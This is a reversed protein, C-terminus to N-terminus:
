PLDTLRCIFGWGGGIESVALMLENSGKKLPLYVADDELSIIGLRWKECSPLVPIFNTGTPLQLYNRPPATIYRIRKKSPPLTKEPALRKGRV